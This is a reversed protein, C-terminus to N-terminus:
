LSSSIPLLALIPMLSKSCPFIWHCFIVGRPISGLDRMTESELDLVRREPSTQCISSLPDKFKQKHMVKYKSKSSKTSILLTHSYLSGLAETKCSFM